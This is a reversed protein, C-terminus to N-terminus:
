NADSRMNESGREGLERGVQSLSCELGNFLYYRNKTFKYILM